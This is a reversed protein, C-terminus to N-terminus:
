PVGGPRVLVVPLTFRGSLIQDDIGDSETRTFYSYVPLPRVHTCVASDAREGWVIQPCGSARVAHVILSKSSSEGPRSPRFGTM